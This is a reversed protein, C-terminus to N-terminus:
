YVDEMHSFLLQCAYIQRRAKSQKLHRMGLSDLHTTVVDLPQFSKISERTSHGLQFLPVKRTWIENLYWRSEIADRYLPVKVARLCRSALELKHQRSKRWLGFWLKFMKVKWNWQKALIRKNDGWSHRVVYCQKTWICVKSQIQWTIM